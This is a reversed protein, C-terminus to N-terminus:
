TCFVIFLLLLFVVFNEPSLNKTGAGQEAGQHNSLVALLNKTIYLAWIKPLPINMKSKFAGM